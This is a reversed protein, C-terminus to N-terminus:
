QYILFPVTKVKNELDRARFYERVPGYAIIKKYFSMNTEDFYWEEVFVLETIEDLNIEKKVSKKTIKGTEADEIDVVEAVAGFNEEVKQFSLKTKELNFYDYVTINQKKVNEIMTKVLIKSDLKAFDTFLSDCKSLKVVYEARPCVLKATSSMKASDNLYIILPINQRIEQLSDGVQVTYTRIAAIGSVNKEIKSSTEDYTWNELFMLDQVEQPLINSTVIQEKGDITVKKDVADFNLKVNEFTIPMKERLSFQYAQIKKNEIGKLLNDIFEKSKFDQLIPLAGPQQVLGVSYTIQEAVKNYKPFQNKCGFVLLISLVTISIITKKM